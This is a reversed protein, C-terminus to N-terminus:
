ACRACTKLNTEVTCSPLACVEICKLAHRRQKVMSRLSNDGYKLVRSLTRCSLPMNDNPAMHSWLNFEAWTDLWQLLKIRTTEPIAQGKVAIVLMMLTTVTKHISGEYVEYPIPKTQGRGLWIPGFNVLRKAIVRTLRKGGQEM